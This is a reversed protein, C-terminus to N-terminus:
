RIPIREADDSVKPAYREWHHYLAAGEPSNQHYTVSEEDAFYVAFAYGGSETQLREVLLISEWNITNDANLVHREEVTFGVKQM